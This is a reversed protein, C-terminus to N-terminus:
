KKAHHLHQRWDNLDKYDRYAESRDYVIIPAVKKQLQVLSLLGTNGGELEDRDRFYEIETIIATSKIFDVVRGLMASSNMVITTKDPHSLKKASLYTLFDMFGEFLLLSSTGKDFLTLDAGSGAFGKFHKNRLSFTSGSPFGLAYFKQGTNQTQYHIEKVYAAALEPDIAREQSLYNKLVFSFLERM